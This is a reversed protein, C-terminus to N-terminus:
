KGRTSKSQRKWTGSRTRCHRLKMLNFTGQLRERRELDKSQRMGGNLTHEFNKPQLEKYSVRKRKTGKDATPSEARVVRMCKKRPKFVRKQAM